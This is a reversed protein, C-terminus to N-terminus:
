GPQEAASWMQRPDFTKVALTTLIVVAAFPLAAPEARSDILNNYQLVPVFCAITFPDVMSWRGIEELVRYIRTKGVLRRTSGHLTSVVCWSLGAMKLLPVALSACFVLAALGIFHADILDRIGGVVTYSTPTFGVPITAIPYLNAPFYLLAAAALLALPAALGGRRPRPSAPQPDIIRWVSRPDLTARTFLSALAAGVFCFAGSGVEVDLTAHLRVYAVAFGLLYVDLMAWTELTQAAHFVPALWRPRGGARLTALVACLAAFRLAPFVLVFLAVIAALFPWGEQWLVFVGSPLRSTRTAGLVATTLFPEFAAPILLVWTAAAFALSADLSRGATAPDYPAQQTLGCNPCVLM